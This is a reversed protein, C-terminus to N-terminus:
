EVTRGELKGECSKWGELDRRESPYFRILLRRPLFRRNIVRTEAFPVLPDRDRNSDEFLIATTLFDLWTVQVTTTPFRWRLSVRRPPGDPHPEVCPEETPGYAATLASLVADYAAPTARIARRELLVQQLRGSAKNMQFFATFGLGAFDVDFFAQEAYAGGFDWRGPLRRLDAGFVEALQSETMGWRAGRWGTLDDPAARLEGALLLFVASVAMLRM